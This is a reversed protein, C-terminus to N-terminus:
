GTYRELRASKCPGCIAKDGEKESCLHQCCRVTCSRCIWNPIPQAQGKSRFGASRCAVCNKLRGFMPKWQSAVPSPPPMRNEGSM